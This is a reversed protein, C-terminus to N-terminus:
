SVKRVAENARSRKELGFTWWCLGDLFEDQKAECILRAIVDGFSDSESLKLAVLAKYVDDDLTVQHFKGPM